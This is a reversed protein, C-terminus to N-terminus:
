FRTVSSSFPSRVKLALLSKNIEAGELRTKRDNDSTDAGRESGALDIFSLKGIARGPGAPPAQAYNSHGATNEAEAKRKLKMEFITHARSSDDNAGTQGMSRAGMGHDILKSILNVSEVNYEKLGVVQVAFLIYTTSRCPDTALLFRSLPRFRARRCRSGGM